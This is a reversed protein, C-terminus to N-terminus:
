SLPLGGVGGPPAAVQDLLMKPGYNRASLAGLPSNPPHVFVFVSVTQAKSLSCKLARPTASSHLTDIHMNDTEGYSPLVPCPSHSHLPRFAGAGIQLAHGRERRKGTRISRGRAPWLPAMTGSGAGWAM